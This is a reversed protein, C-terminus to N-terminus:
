VARLAPNRFLHIFRNYPSALNSSKTLALGPRTLGQSFGSGQVRFGSGHFRFGSGPVRFGSGQVRFGSGQFGSM